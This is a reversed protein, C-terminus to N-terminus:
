SSPGSRLGLDNAILALLVLMATVWPWVILWVPATRLIIIRLTM